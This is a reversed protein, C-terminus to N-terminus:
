ICLRMKTYCSYWLQWKNNKYKNNKITTNYDEYISDSLSKVESDTINYKRPKLIALDCVLDVM